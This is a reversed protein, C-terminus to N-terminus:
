NNNNYICIWSIVKKGSNWSNKKIKKEKVNIM